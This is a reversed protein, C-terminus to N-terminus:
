GDQPTPDPNPTGEIPRRQDSPAQPPSQGTTPTVSPAPTVVHQASRTKHPYSPAADIFPSLATRDAESAKVLKEFLQKPVARMATALRFLPVREEGIGTSPVTGSNDTRAASPSSLASPTPGVSHPVDNAAPGGPATVQPSPETAASVVSKEKVYAAVGDTLEAAKRAKINGSAKGLELRRSVRAWDPQELGSNVNIIAAFTALNALIAGASRQDGTAADFSLQSLDARADSYWGGKSLRAGECTVSLVRLMRATWGQARPVNAQNIILGVYKKTTESGAITNLFFDSGSAAILEDVSFRELPKKTEKAVSAFTKMLDLEVDNPWEFRTLADTIAAATETAKPLAITQEPGTESTKPTNGVEERVIERVDSKAITDAQASLFTAGAFGGLIGLALFTFYQGPRDQDKADYRVLSAIALHLANATIIGLLIDGIFGIHFARRKVKQPVSVSAPSPSPKASPDSDGTAKRAADDPQSRVSEVDVFGLDPLVLSGNRDLHYGLGGAAGAFCLLATIKIFTSQIGQLARILKPVYCVALVLLSIAVFNAAVLFVTKNGPEEDSLHFSAVILAISVVSIVSGILFTQRIKGDLDRRNVSIFAALIFSAVVAGILFDRLRPPVKSPTKAASVEPNTANQNNGTPTPSVQAQQSTKEAVTPMWAMYVSLFIVTGLLMLIVIWLARPMKLITSRLERFFDPLKM